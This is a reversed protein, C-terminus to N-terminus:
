KCCDHAVYKVFYSKENIECNYVVIGPHEGRLAWFVTELITNLM